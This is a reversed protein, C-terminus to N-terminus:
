GLHIWRLRTVSLRMAVCSVFEEHLTCTSAGLQPVLVRCESPPVTSNCWALSEGWATPDRWAKPDGWAEPDGRPRLSGGPRLIGGPRPVGLRLIWGLGWAEPDGETALLVCSLAVLCPVPGYSMPCPWFVYSLAMPCLILLAMPCLVLSYSMPCPWQARVSNTAPGAGLPRNGQGITRHTRYGEGMDQPRTRHGM